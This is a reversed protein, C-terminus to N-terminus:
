GAIERALELIGAAVDSDAHYRAVRRGAASLAERDGLAQADALTGFSYPAGPIPIDDDHVTTIQLFVGSTPGGKHLQGTSHLLADSLVSQNAM